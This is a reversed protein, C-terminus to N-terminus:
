SIPKALGTLVTSKFHPNSQFCSRHDFSTQSMSYQMVRKSIVREVNQFSKDTRWYLCTNLKIYSSISVNHEKLVMSLKLCVKRLSPKSFNVKRLEKGMLFTLFTWNAHIITLSYLPLLTSLSLIIRVTNIMLPFSIFTLCVSYQVPNRHVLVLDHKCRDQWVYM